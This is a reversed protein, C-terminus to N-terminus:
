GNRTSLLKIMAVSYMNHITVQDFPEQAFGIDPLVERRTSNSLLRPDQVAAADSGCLQELNHIENLLDFSRRLLAQNHGDNRQLVPAVSHRWLKFPLEDRVHFTTMSPIPNMDSVVNGPQLDLAPNMVSYLNRWQDQTVVGAEGEELMHSIAQQLEDDEVRLSQIPAVDVNGTATASTDGIQLNEPSRQSSTSAMLSLNNREPSDDVSPRVSGEESISLSSSTGSHSRYQVRASMSAQNLARLQPKQTQLQINAAKTITQPFSAWRPDTLIIDTELGTSDLDEKASEHEEIQQLYM